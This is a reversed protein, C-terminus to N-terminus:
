KNQDLAEFTEQLLPQLPSVVKTAQHGREAQKFMAVFSQPFVYITLHQEKFFM